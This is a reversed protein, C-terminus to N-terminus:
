LWVRHASRRQNYDKSFHLFLNLFKSKSKKKLRNKELYILM